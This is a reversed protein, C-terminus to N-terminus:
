DLKLLKPLYDFESYELGGIEWGFPYTVSMEIM